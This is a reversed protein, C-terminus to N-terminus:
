RRSGEGLSTLATSVSHSASEALSSLSSGLRVQPARMVEVSEAGIGFRPNTRLLAQIEQQLGTTLLDGLTARDRASLTMGRLVLRDIHIAVRRM